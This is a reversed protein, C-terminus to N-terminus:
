ANLLHLRIANLIQKATRAARLKSHGGYKLSQTQTTESTAIALEYNRAKPKVGGVADVPKDPPGVAVGIETGFQERVKIAALKVLDSTPLPQDSVWNAMQRQGLSVGAQVFKGARDLASLYEFALGGFGFDVISLSKDKERLLNFVVEQLEAGNEGFVMEGLTEQITKITPQMQAVCAAESEASATIRLSITAHSATIGVRPIRDREILDGLLQEVQSEGGGFSHIVHHLTTSTRGTLKNIASEVHSWMQKLEYPVGPMAFVTSGQEPFFLEVGPATGEPNPIVVAGAPFFAQRKNSEPMERGHVLFISRIHDVVEEDFELDVGATKAIVERTLDDATPGIGGTCVVVDARETATTFVKVMQNMNDGVSSHFAIRVGLEELKGSIWQSNTDLRQGSTIEDGIAIVEAVLNKCSNEDPATDNKTDM